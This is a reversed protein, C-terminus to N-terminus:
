NTKALYTHYNSVAPIPCKTANLASLMPFWPTNEDEVSTCINGVTSFSMDEGQETQKYATM